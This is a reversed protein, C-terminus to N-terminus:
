WSYTARAYYFGGNFGFPSFNSYQAFGNPNAGPIVLDPYQDFANNAGVAFSFNDNFDYGLEIDAVWEASFTQDLAANANRSTFKGYRNGRLNIDFAGIAYNIGLNIKNKPQSVTFRGEEVRAFRNLQLGLATLTSPNGKVAKVNTDNFNAGLTLGLSGDGVDTRYNAVIDIGKTRTDIANTFFRGGTVGPFGRATLFNQVATGTLNESLVIRDDIDIRYADVTINLGDTPQTTFGLSLNVSKEADLDEAGLLRAVPDNVRFTRVEFPIGGIFNTATSSFFSQQLSPARFGNSVAGRIAFIDTIDFKAAAKGSVTSGFDSYDEFRGAVSFLFADTLNTELDIYASMSHRGADVEDGPRFGPFGQAGPASLTTADQRGPETRVTRGGDAWSAPEGAGLEYSEHRWEAGFAISLPEPFGVEAETGFDANAVFQDYNLDGAYFSTPSEFGYTANLTNEVGFPFHNTGYVASVDWRFDDGGKVGAAVSADTIDSTIFPLFGNPYIARVNNVDRPRRWTAGSTGERQSYNGFSYLEIDGSLPVGLNYVVNADEVKSDGYKFNSTRNIQAERPDPQGSPLNNYQQRSDAAQRNTFGRHRYEASLNLYGDSGLGIGMNGVTAYLDGDGEYHSGVNATVSGGENADKLIVNIVGAIADSGYQAAAGDRLIEVRQISAAPITNLDAATSGRGVSGNLNLLSTHHRRKGNVLVLTQDPSLGRLTAPRIHDTGDTITPQPFNYSPVLQNLVRNLEGSGSKLLDATSVVDIPVPSDAVTRDIRRTGTVIIEELLSESAQQQAQQASVPAGMAMVAGSLATAALLWSKNRPLSM